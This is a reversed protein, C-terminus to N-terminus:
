CGVFLCICITFYCVVVPLCIFFLVIRAFVICTTTVIYALLIFSYKGRGCRGRVEGV